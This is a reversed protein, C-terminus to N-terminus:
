GSASGSARCISLSLVSDTRRSGTRKTSVLRSEGSGIVLFARNATSEAVFRSVVRRYVLSVPIFVLFSMLMVARSPNMSQDYTAASYVLLASFAAASLLALICETTFSLTRMDTHRDYEGIIFLASIIVALQILDVVIFQLPTTYFADHRLFSFLAYIGIWCAVDLVLFLLAPAWEQGLGRERSLSRSERPM